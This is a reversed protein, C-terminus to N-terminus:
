QVAVMDKLAEFKKEGIGSVRMLDEPATFPGNAERDAIIKAATSPGIGPLDDLQQATATNINVVAIAGPAATGGAPSGGAGALAGAGVPAGIGALGGSAQWEDLTPVVIQEGDAVIRALNLAQQAANPMLGGAASLADFVRCGANVSVVGPHRVAGVVHVVVSTPAVSEAAELAQEPVAAMDSSEIEFSDGGAGAGAWRWIGLAVIAAGILAICAFAAPSVSGFGARRLLDHIRDIREDSM